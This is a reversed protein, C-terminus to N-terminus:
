TCAVHNYTLLWTASAHGQGRTTPRTFALAFNSHAALYRWTLAVRTFLQALFVYGVHWLCPSSHAFSLVGKVCWIHGSLTRIISLSPAIIHM